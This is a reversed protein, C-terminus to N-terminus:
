SKMQPSRHLGCESGDKHGLEYGDQVFEQFIFKEPSQYCYLCLINKIM